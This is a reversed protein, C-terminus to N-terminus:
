KSKCEVGEQYYGLGCECIHGGKTNRCAREAPCALEDNKCEDFDFCSHGNFKYGRSCVCQQTASDCTALDQHHAYKCKEFVDLPSCPKSDTYLVDDLDYTIIKTKNAPRVWLSRHTTVKNHNDRKFFLRVAGIEFEKPVRVTILAHPELSCTAAYTLTSISVIALVSVALVTTRSLSGSGGGRRTLTNHIPPVEGYTPDPIRNPPPPPRLTSAVLSEGNERLKKSSFESLKRDM